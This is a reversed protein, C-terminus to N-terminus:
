KNCKQYYGDVGGYKDACKQLKRNIEKRKKTTQFKGSFDTYDYVVIGHKKHIEVCDCPSPTTSCSILGLCSTALYVYKKM